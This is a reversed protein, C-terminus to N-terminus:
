YEYSLAEAPAIRAARSAPYWTAAVSILLASVAVIMVDSWRLESPLYPIFYVTPDFLMRGTMAELQSVITGLRPAVVVGILVGLATGLFGVVTGQLLFIIRIQNANAGMTRLVAIDGRKDTITMLVISVINFSAVAVVSLLMVFIMTKEMQVAAFLTANDQQWDRVVWRDADLRQSQLPALADRTLEGARDRDNVAVRLGSVSDRMALMAQAASLSVLALQADLEAGVEFVAVVTFARQRTQLGFPTVHVRPVLVNLRDGPVVGLRRALLSGLVMGYRQESLRSIDGAIIREPLSSVTIERGLEIGLFTAPTMQEGSSLLVTEEVYPAVGTIAQSDLLGQSLERWNAPSGQESVVKAHPLLALLRQQLEREFGNMVSVVVILTFVGLVLGLLSIMTLWSSMGPQLGPRCYRLAVFLAFSRM